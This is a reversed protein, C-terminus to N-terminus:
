EGEIINTQYVERREGSKFPIMKKTICPGTYICSPFGCSRYLSIKEVRVSGLHDTVIDGINVRSNEQTYKLDLLVKKDEYSREIKEREKLYETETM